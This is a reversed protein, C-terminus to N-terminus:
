SASRWAALAVADPKAGRVLKEATVYLSAAAIPRRAVAVVHGDEATLQRFRGTAPPFAFVEQHPNLIFM